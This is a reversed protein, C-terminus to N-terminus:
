VGGYLSFMGQHRYKARLRHLLALLDMYMAKTYKSRRFLLPIAKMTGQMAKGINGGICAGVVGGGFNDMGSRQCVECRSERTM